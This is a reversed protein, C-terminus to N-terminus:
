KIEKLDKETIEDELTHSYEFDDNVFNYDANKIKVIAEQKNKAEVEIKQVWIERVKMEYLKDM